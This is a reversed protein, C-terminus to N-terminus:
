NKKIYSLSTENFNNSTSINNAKISTTKFIQHYKQTKFIRIIIEQFKKQKLCRILSILAILNLTVQFDSFTDYGWIKKINLQKNKKLLLASSILSTGRFVGAEVIDGKM